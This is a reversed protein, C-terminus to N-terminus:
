PIKGLNEPFVVLEIIGQIDELTIFGMPKGEKTRISRVNTVLGAVTLKEGKGAEGLQASYHSVKNDLVPLYIKLPHDSVYLGLLEKEWALQERSDTSGMSPLMIKEEVGEASGFISLQGKNAARFHSASIASIQDLAALISKRPGFTDLAGVRVLCELTRKGVKSLDVRRAFDNLDKFPAEEPSEHDHGGPRPRREQDCGARFPHLRRGEPCDEITFDWGSTNVDPPLVDIGMAKCDAIYLAIKEMENKSASLLSTMYEVTYHCKLFATQVAIVGYDAAHSKNFGYRAFNEWDSFISEAKEANIGNQGCGQLSNKATNPWRM